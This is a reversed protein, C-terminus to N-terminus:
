SGALRSLKDCLGDSFRSPVGDQIVEVCHLLVQLPNDLPMQTGDRKTLFPYGERKTLYQILLPHDPPLGDVAFYAEQGPFKGSAPTLSEQDVLSICWLVLAARYIAGAWWPPRTGEPLSRVLRIIQGSHFVAEEVDAISNKQIWAMHQYSGDHGERRALREVEPFHSVANLSVLHFMVLNAQMLPCCPNNKMYRDTLGYWRRLLSQVEDLRVRTSVATVSNAGTRFTSTESFCSLVERFQCVLSHLPHLLLRLHLATLEVGQSVISDDLFLRFLDRLSLPRAGSGLSSYGGSFEHVREFISSWEPASKAHWLADSDPMSAAFDGVSFLPTTDHFLSLEQDVMVWSFVLRQHTLATAEIWRKPAYFSSSFTFHFRFMGAASNM